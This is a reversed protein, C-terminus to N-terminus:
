ERGEKLPRDTLTMGLVGPTLAITLRKGKRLVVLRCPSDQQADRRRAEIFRDSNVVPRGGYSLLVDGVELGLRQGRNGPEVAAIVVRFAVQRGQVDYAARDIRHNEEDYRWTIRAYGKGALAASRGDTGFYAVETLNGRVDFTSTVRQYGDRHLAPRGDPGFCAWEIEKGRADYRIQVRHFGRRGIAPRGDIGYLAFAVRNGRDDFWAEFRHYGEECLTPQSDPTFVAEELLKGKPDRKQQL